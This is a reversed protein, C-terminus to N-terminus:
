SIVARKLHMTFEYGTKAVSEFSFSFFLFPFSCSLLVDPVTIM